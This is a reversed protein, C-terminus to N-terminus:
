YRRYVDDYRQQRRLEELEKRQRELEEENRMLEEQVQQQDADVGDLSNGLLAGGLAGTAAGIAIGPGLMVQEVALLQEM